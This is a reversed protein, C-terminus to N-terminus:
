HYNQLALGMQRLHISGDDGVTDDGAAPTGSTSTSATQGGRVAELDDAAIPRLQLIKLHRTLQRARDGPHTMTTAKQIPTQADRRM